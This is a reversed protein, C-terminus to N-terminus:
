EEVRVGFAFLLVTVIGLGFMAGGFLLLGLLIM